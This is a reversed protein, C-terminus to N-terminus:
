KHRKIYWQEAITLVNFMLYYLNLGASLKYFIFTMFVPMMYTMAKQQPSPNTLRQQLLMTVGMLIPLLHIGGLLPIIADPASLDRILFFHAQRLMITTRFINFLAFLVPMQLLLPLCGGMPNVGHEKYLKMTEQNLKQPDKKYKERLANIKPQLEQMERMSKNSKRTLPYLVAKILISFIIIAWGYNKIISHIFELTYMFAISFPKIIVWGFDMLKELRADASKLRRYDLPGLYLTYADTWSNGPRSSSVMRLSFTKWNKVAGRYSVSVKNGALEAAKAPDGSILAMAFYKTRVAIWQTQGERLGTSKEKTNLLETGQLAYAQYFPIENSVDSETPALGSAWDVTYSESSSVRGSRAIEISMDVLYSNKRTSFIRVVSLGDAFEKKFRIRQLDAHEASWATDTEWKFVSYPVNEGERGFADMWLSLNGQSTDPILEVWNNEDEQVLDAKKINPKFYKKLKWSVVTGGGLTSLRARFLANELIVTDPKQDKMSSVPRPVAPVPVAAISAISENGIVDQGASDAATRSQDTGAAKQVPKKVGVVKNMYLPWLLLVAGIAILAILSKRDM